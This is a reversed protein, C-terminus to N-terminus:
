NRNVAHRPILLSPEIRNPPQLVPLAQFQILPRTTLTAEIAPFIAMARGPGAYVAAFAPTMASAADNFADSCFYPMRAQETQGPSTLVGAMDRRACGSVSSAKFLMSVGSSTALAISNTTEKGARTQMLSSLMEGSRRGAAELAYDHTVNGAWRAM